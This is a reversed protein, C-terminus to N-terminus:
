ERMDETIGFLEHFSAHCQRCLAIVDSFREEGLRSYDRHHIDILGSANCMQCRNECHKLVRLRVARWHDSLLYSRYPLSKLHDTAQRTLYPIIYNPANDFGGGRGSDQLENLSRCFKGAESASSFVGLLIWDEAHQYKGLFRDINRKVTSNLTDVHFLGRQTGRACWEVVWPGVAYTIDEPNNSM